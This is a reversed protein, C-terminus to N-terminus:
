EEEGSNHLGFLSYHKNIAEEIESASPLAMVAVKAGNGTADPLPRGGAKLRDKVAHSTRMGLLAMQEIFHMQDYVMRPRKYNKIIWSRYDHYVQGSRIALEGTQRAVVMFSTGGAGTIM